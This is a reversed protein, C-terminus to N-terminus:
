RYYSVSSKVIYRTRIGDKTKESGVYAIYPEIQVVTSERAKSIGVTGFPNKVDVKRTFTNGSKSFSANKLFNPDKYDKRENRLAFLGFELGSRATYLAQTTHGLGTSLKLYNSLFKYGAFALLGIITGYIVVTGLTFGKQSFLKIDKM